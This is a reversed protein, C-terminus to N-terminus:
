SVRRPCIKVSYKLLLKIQFFNVFLLLFTSGVDRKKPADEESETGTEEEYSPRLDERQGDADKKQLKEGVRESVRSPGPQVEVKRQANVQRQPQPKPPPPVESEYDEDDDDEEEEEDEDYEDESEEYAVNQRLSFSTDPYSLPM